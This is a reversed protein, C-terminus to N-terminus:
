VHTGTNPDSPAQEAPEAQEDDPQTGRRKRLVIRIVAIVLLLGVSGGVLWSGAVEWDASVTIPIFVPDFSVLNGAPSVLEAQLVVDGNAVGAQVPVTAQKSSSGEITVPVNSDVILRGNSPKVKLVVSVPYALDNQILIPVDGSNGLLTISSGEIIKVATVTKQTDALSATVSVTWGGANSRWSNSLLAMLNARHEATLLTPDALITAFSTLQSEATILNSTTAIREADEPADVITADTSVQQSAFQSFSAETSWGLTGMINLATAVNTGDTPWDRGFTALVTVDSGATEEAVVALTSTLTATANGFAIPGTATSAARLADSISSDSIYGTIGDINAVGTAVGRAEPVAVNTSSLVASSFGSRQLFGLEPTTVTNDSPWALDTATYPWALLAETTPVEPKQDVPATTAAATEDPLQADVSAPAGPPPTRFNAPDLGYNLSIPTLVSSLGAQSQASLDSDAYSLPYIPNAASGLKVLWDHASQPAASGLARISAIIRPDIMIAAQTNSVADLQRTLLGNDGTMTALAASPILGTQGAQAIIPMAVAVKTQAPVTGSDWVVSSRGKAVVAGASTLSASLGYVGWEDLRLENAPITATLDREQGAPVSPSEVTITRVPSNPTPDDGSAIWASLAPRSLLPDSDLTLTITGAAVEDKSSNSILIRATLDEGPRVIGNGQPAVTLGIGAEGAVVTALGAPASAATVTVPAASSSSPTATSAMAMPGALVTASVVAGLGLVTPIARLRRLIASKM